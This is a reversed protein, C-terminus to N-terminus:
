GINRELKIVEVLKNQILELKAEFQYKDLDYYDDNRVYKFNNYREIRRDIQYKAEATNKESLLKYRMFQLSNIKEQNKKGNLFTELDEPTLKATQSVKEKYFKVISKADYHKNMLIAFRQFIKPNFIENFMNQTENLFTLASNKHIKETYFALPLGLMYGNSVGKGDLCYSMYSEEKSSVPLIDIKTKSGLVARLTKIFTGPAIENNRICDQLNDYFKLNFLRAKQMRQTVNGSSISLPLFSKAHNIKIQVM